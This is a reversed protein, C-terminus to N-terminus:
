LKPCSNVSLDIPNGNPGVTGEYPYGTYNQMVNYFKYDDTLGCESKIDNVTLNAVLSRFVEYPCDYSQCWPSLLVQHGSIPRLIDETENIYFTRVINTRNITHSEIIIM